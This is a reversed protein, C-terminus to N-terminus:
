HCLTRNLCDLLEHPSFPKSLYDAANAAYLQRVDEIATIKATIVIIPINCTRVSQRLQYFIPWVAQQSESMDLLVVDPAERWVMNLELQEHPTHLIEFGHQALLHDTGNPQQTHAEIYVVKKQTKM